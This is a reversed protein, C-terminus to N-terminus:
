RGGTGDRDRFRQRQDGATFAADVTVSSGETKLREVKFLFNENTTLTTESDAAEKVTKVIKLNGSKKTNIVKITVPESVTVGASTVTEPDYTVDFVDAITRNQDGANATTLVESATVKSGQPVCIIVSQNPKISVPSTVSSGSKDKVDTFANNDPGTM